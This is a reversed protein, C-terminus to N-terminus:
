SDVATQQHVHQEAVSQWATQQHVHQEAVLQWGPVGLVEVCLGGFYRWTSRNMAARGCGHCSGQFVADRDMWFGVTLKRLAVAEALRGEDDGALFSLASLRCRPALRTSKWLLIKSYCCDVGGRSELFWCSKIM